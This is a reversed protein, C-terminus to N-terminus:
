GGNRASFQWYQSPPSDVLPWTFLHLLLWAVLWAFRCDREWHGWALPTPSLGVAGFRPSRTLVFDFEQRADDPFRTM